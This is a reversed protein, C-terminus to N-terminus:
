EEARIIKIKNIEKKNKKINGQFLIQGSNLLKLRESFKNGNSNNNQLHRTNTHSEYKVSHMCLDCFLKSNNAREEWKETPDQSPIGTALHSFNRFM